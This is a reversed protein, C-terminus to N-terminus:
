KNPNRLSDTKSYSTNLFLFLFIARQSCYRRRPAAISCQPMGSPHWKPVEAKGHLPYGVGQHLDVDPTPERRQPTPARYHGSKGTQRM